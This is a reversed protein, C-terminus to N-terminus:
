GECDFLAKQETIPDILEKWRLHADCVDYVPLAEPDMDMVIMIDCRNARDSCSTKIDVGHIGSIALTEGFIEEAMKAIATM